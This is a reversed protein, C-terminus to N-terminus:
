LWGSRRFQWFLTGAAGFIVALVIFYGYRWTLEPMFEFNMGYIGAIATPVALIAAWGAFRRSVEGQRASELLHAAEFAFSLVERLGDITENVRVVHDLVDKFYPRMNKDMFPLEVHRLRSCVEIMPAVVRRVRVLERRLEYIREIDGRSLQGALLREEIADVEEVAAAVVPMYNDVVFDLLAHLVYDVGHTLLKPSAECRTRVPLYSQSAGQRVSIIYDAGVFICTEGFVVKGQELAVTRLVVFLSDGYVELKPVQHAGMADEIALEHLRFQAQLIRLDADTPEHFGIWVFDGKERAWSASDGLQIEAIRCGCRYAYAAVVRGM